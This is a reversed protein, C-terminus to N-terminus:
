SSRGMTKEIKKEMAAASEAPLLGAVYECVFEGGPQLVKVNGKKKEANFGDVEATGVEMGLAQQDPTRSIWRIGHDLQAPQHAVYDATGDPHVFMSHAWGGEDARFDIMFVIEPDFTQEATLTHHLGPNRVLDNVFNKLHDTPVMHGPFSARVKVHQSDYTASYVFRGDDVPLFNIHALYLYEMPTQKLNNVRMKFHIVSEHEYLRAYPEARYNHGFAASHLYRGGVGIYRGQADEGADIYASDYLANTLEGHIPHNDGPGPSGMASMGCHVLFSGFNSLFDRTQKPEKVPSRWRLDRGDFKAEWVKQGLFPLVVMEGRSNKIRLARVGSPYLFGSVIIEGFEALMMKGVPFQEKRVSIKIPAGSM